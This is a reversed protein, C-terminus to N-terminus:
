LCIFILFLLFLLFAHLAYNRKQVKLVKASTKNGSDKKNTAPFNVVVIKVASSMEHRLLLTLRM